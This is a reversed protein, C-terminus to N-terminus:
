RIIEWILKVSENTDSLHMTSIQQHQDRVPINIVVGRKIGQSQLKALNTKGLGCPAKEMQIRINNKKAIRVIEATDTKSVFFGSGKTQVACGNGLLPISVGPLKTDFDVPQAYAADVVIAFADKNSNVINCFSSKDIEEKTSFVFVLTNTSGFVNAMSLLELLVTCGIRNDLASARLQNGNKRFFRTYAVLDGPEIYKEDIRRSPIFLFNNSQSMGIKGQINKGIIFVNQNEVKKSKINGQPSLVIGDNNRDVLFGVEDAHAELIITNGTNGIVSVINGDSDIKTNANLNSAINYICRSISEREYGSIGPQGCLTKLNRVFNSTM